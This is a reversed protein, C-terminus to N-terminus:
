HTTATSACTTATTATSGDGAPPDLKFGAAFDFHIWGCSVLAAIGAVPQMVNRGHDLLAPAPSGAEVGRVQSCGKRRGSSLGEGSKLDAGKDVEAGARRPRGSSCIPWSGCRRPAPSN